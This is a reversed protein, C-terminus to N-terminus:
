FHPTCCVSMPTGCAPRFSGRLTYLFPIYMYTGKLTYLFSHLELKAYLFLTYTDELTHITEFYVSALFLKSDQFVIFCHLQCESIFLVAVNLYMTNISLHIDNYTIVNVQM